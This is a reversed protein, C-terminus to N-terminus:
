ALRALVMHVINESLDHDGYTIFIKTGFLRYSGDDQREARTRLAGLDSGAHPETLNMTGPWEGSVMKPMYTEKLEVSGHSLLAAVAGQSLLPCLSFSLNAANWIETVAVALVEPLGQGGYQEPGPLANWGGECFQQYADKWGAPTTM